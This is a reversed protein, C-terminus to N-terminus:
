LDHKYDTNGSRASSHGIVFAHALVLEVLRLIVSGKESRKELHVDRMGM